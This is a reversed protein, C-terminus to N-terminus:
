SIVYQKRWYKKQPILFSLVEQNWTLVALAEAQTQPSPM